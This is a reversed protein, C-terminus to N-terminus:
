KKRKQKKDEVLYDPIALCIAILLLFLLLWWKFSLTWDYGTTVLTWIGTFVCLKFPSPLAWQVIRHFYCWNQAMMMPLLKPLVKKLSVRYSQVRPYASEIRINDMYEIYIDQRLLRRELNSRPSKQNLVLWERDLAINMRELTSSLGLRTNGQKFLSNSIEERIAQLRSKFTTRNSLIRHLQIAKIGADYTNNIQTLLTPPVKATEELIVVMDCVSEKLAEISQFIDKYPIVEYLEEPYEQPTLTTNEPLLIVYRHMKKAKPYTFNAKTHSAIAFVYLYISVIILCFFLLSDIHIFLNTM